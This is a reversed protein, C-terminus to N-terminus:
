ESDHSDESQPKDRDGEKNLPIYVVGDIQPNVKGQQILTNIARKVSTVSLELKAAIDKHVGKPWPQPPLTKLVSELKEESLYQKKTGKIRIILAGSVARLIRFTIDCRECFADVASHPFNDLNIDITKGCSSCTVTEKVVKRPLLIFGDDGTYRSIFQKDCNTCKVSKFGDENPRQRYLLPKDCDPCQMVVDQKRKKRARLPVQAIGMKAAMSKLDKRIESVERRIADAETISSGQPPQDEFIPELRKILQLLEEGQEEKEEKQQELLDDIVGEWDSLATDNVSKLTNIVHIASSMREERSILMENLDDTDSRELEDTLYSSLKGLEKSLNNVKEAAKKAYIQLNNKHFEQVEQIAKKHQSESYIHTVLWSSLTSLIVLVVGVLASERATLNGTAIVWLCILGGIILLSVMIGKIRM